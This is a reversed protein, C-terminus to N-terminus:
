AFGCRFMFFLPGCSSFCPGVPPLRYSPFFFPSIYIYLSLSGVFKRVSVGFVLHLQPQTPHTPFPPRSVLSELPISSASSSFPFTVYRFTSGMVQLEERDPGGRRTNGGTTVARGAEASCCVCVCVGDCVADYLQMCRAHM